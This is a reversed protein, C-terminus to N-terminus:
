FVPEFIDAGDAADAIEADIIAIRSFLSFFVVAVM